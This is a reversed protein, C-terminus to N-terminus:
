DHAGRPLFLDVALGGSAPRRAFITGGMGEILGKSISLGLGTGGVKEASSARYFKEFIRSLDDPSVGQGTDVVSVCVATAGASLTITIAGDGGYRLANDVVNGLAQEFLLPDGIADPMAASMRIEVRGEQGRLQRAVVAEAAELLSFPEQRLALNGSQLRMMQLLHSVYSDLRIAENEINSALDHRTDADFQDSFRRLSGSSGIIAALPTRLDHSLSSLLDNRLDETRARAEADAKEVSLQIRALAAAATDVLLEFASVPARVGNQGMRWGAVGLQRDGAVMTRLRWGEHVTTCPPRRAGVGALDRARELAGPDIGARHPSVIQGDVGVFGTMGALDQLRQALRESVLRADLLSAFERAADLLTAQVASAQRESRREERFKAALLCTLSSAAIFLALSNFEDISGLSWEYPPDVLYLHVSFAAIMALCGPGPGLYFAAILVSSLFISTLRGTGSVRAFFDALMGALGVIALAGLYRLADRQRPGLTSLRHLRAPTNPKAPVTRPTEMADDLALANSQVSIRVLRKLGQVHHM